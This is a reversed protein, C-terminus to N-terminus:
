EDLPGTKGSFITRLADGIRITNHEVDIRDDDTTMDVGTKCDDCIVLNAGVLMPAAGLSAKFKSKCVPCTQSKGSTDWNWRIRYDAM